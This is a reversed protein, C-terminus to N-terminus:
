SCASLTQKQQQHLAEVLADLTPYRGIASAFHTENYESCVIYTKIGARQAATFGTLSDEIVRCRDASLGLKAMATLYVAPDPKGFPENDASCIVDFWRWLSLKEFVAEIVQSCSSTALALPYNLSTFFSLATTVGTMARGKDRIDQCVSDIIRKEFERPTLALRHNECWYRAIADIRKGKTNLVCERRDIRVGQSALLGIQADQWFGESDIIVGDMDFIIAQVSM